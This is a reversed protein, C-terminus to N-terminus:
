VTQRVLNPLGEVGQGDLADRKPFAECAPQARDLPKFPVGPERQM